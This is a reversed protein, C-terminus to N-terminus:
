LNPWRASGIMCFRRERCSRDRWPEEFSVPKQSKQGRPLLVGKGKLKDEEIEDKLKLENLCKSM